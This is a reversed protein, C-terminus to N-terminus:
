SDEDSLNGADSQGDDEHGLDQAVHPDQLLSEIRRVADFSPDMRFTLKPFYKLRVRRAVQAGLYGASRDLGAVVDAADRGWLPMIFVTGHRLDPSLKVQSVTISVGELAPDRLDGRALVEALAHRLEEGVRLLRHSPGASRTM